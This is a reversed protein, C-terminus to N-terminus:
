KGTQTLSPLIFTHGQTPMCFLLSLPQKFDIPKEEFEMESLLLFGVSLLIEDLSCIPSKKKKKKMMPPNSSLDKHSWLLYKVM